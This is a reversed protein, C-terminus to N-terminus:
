SSLCGPTPADGNNEKDSPGRLYARARVSNHWQTSGSLGSKSAIGAVSPHSSMIVYGNAARALRRMLGVFQRVQSRDIENGGFVDAVNDIVICIPQVARAKAFLADYLPTPRVIGDRGVTALLQGTEDDRDVLSFVHLDSAVEAYSVRYHALIPQLRRVLEGEDDECNVLMVPGKVPLSRLWDRDLVHAVALQLLMISKGAGGHGSLLVVTLKPFRNEVGWERPPIPKTDYQALHIRILEVPKGVGDDPKAPVPQYDPLAEVAAWLREVTGGGTNVWDTVDDSQEIQPWISALDLVRLRKVVPALNRAVLEVHNRGPEDNDGCIVVDAGALIDNFEPWWKGAGMPNCTAPVGLARLTLVDREGEVVFIPRDLALEDILEPLKFPVIRVGKISWKKQDPGTRQRFQKPGNLPEFRLAQFLLRGAEDVYDYVAKAEGLEGGGEPQDFKEASGQDCSHCFWAVRDRDIKVNLYGQSCNPCKTTFKGSRTEVFAIDHRKLLERASFVTM